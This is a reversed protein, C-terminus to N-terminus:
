VVTRLLVKSVWILSWNRELISMQLQYTVYISFPSERSPCFHVQVPDYVDCPLKVRIRRLAAM